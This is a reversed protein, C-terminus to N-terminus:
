SPKAVPTPGLERSSIVRDIMGYEVGQEPSMIYDRDVDRSVREV